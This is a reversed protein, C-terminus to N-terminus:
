SVEELFVHAFGAATVDSQASRHTRSVHGCAVQRRSRKAAPLHLRSATLQSQHGHGWVEPRLGDDDLLGEWGLSPVSFLSAEAGVTVKVDSSARRTEPVGAPGPM